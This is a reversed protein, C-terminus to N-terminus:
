MVGDNSMAGLNLRPRVQTSVTNQIKWSAFDKTPLSKGYGVHTLEYESARHVKQSFSGRYRRKVFGKEILSNLAKSATNQSVHALRSADRISLGITGNNGGNYRELLILFLAIESPKLSRWAETRLM